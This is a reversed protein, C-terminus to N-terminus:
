TLTFMFFKLVFINFCRVFMLFVNFVNYFLEFFKLFQKFVTFCFDLCKFVFRARSWNDPSNVPQAEAASSWRFRHVDM